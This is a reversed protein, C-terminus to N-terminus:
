SNSKILLADKHDPYIKLVKDALFSAEEFKNLQLMLRGKNILSGLNNPDIELIIDLYILAEEYKDLKFLAESKM